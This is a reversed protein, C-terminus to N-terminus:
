SASPAVLQLGHSDPWKQLSPADVASGHSGPEYELEVLRVEAESHVTQGFPMNQRAAEVAGVLQLMALAAGCSPMASQSIHTSPVYWSSGPPSVHLSHGSSKKQGSPDAAGIGAEQSAPFYAAEHVRPSQGEVIMSMLMMLM